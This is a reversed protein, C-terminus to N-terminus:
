RSTWFLASDKSICKTVDILKAHHSRQASDSPDTRSGTTTESNNRPETETRVSGPLREVGQTGGSDQNRLKENGQQNVQKPRIASYELNRNTSIPINEPDKICEALAKSMRQGAKREILLGNYFLHDRLDRQLSADLLKFEKDSWGEFDEYAVEALNEYM